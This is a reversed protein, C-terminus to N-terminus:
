TKFSLSRGPLTLCLCATKGLGAHDWSFTGKTWVMEKCFHLPGVYGTSPLHRQKPITKRRKSKTHVKNQKLRHKTRYRALGVAMGTGPPSLISNKAQLVSHHLWPSQCDRNFSDRQWTPLASNWGTGSLSHDQCGGCWGVPCHISIEPNNGRTAPATVSKTVRWHSEDRSGAGIRAITFIQKRLYKLFLKFITLPFVTIHCQAPRIRLLTGRHSQSGLLGVLPPFLFIESAPPM